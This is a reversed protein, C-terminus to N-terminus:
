HDRAVVADFYDPVSAKWKENADKFAPQATPTQAVFLWSISVDIFRAKLYNAIGFNDM